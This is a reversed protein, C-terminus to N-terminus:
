CSHPHQFPIYHILSSNSLPRNLDCFHSEIRQAYEQAAVSHLLCTIKHKAIWSPNDRSQPTSCFGIIKFQEFKWTLAQHLLPLHLKYQLRILLATRKDVLFLSHCREQPGVAFLLAFSIQLALNSEPKVKFLLCWCHWGSTLETNLTELWVRPPIVFVPFFLFLFYSTSTAVSGLLCAPLCGGWRKM